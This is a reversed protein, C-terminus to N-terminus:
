NFTKLEGIEYNYSNKLFNMIYCFKDHKREMCFTVDKYLWHYLKIIDKIKTISITRLLPRAKRHYVSADINLERKFIIQLNNIFREQGLISFSHSITNRNKIKSSTICGDGEFYGLIFSNLYKNEINPVLFDTYSKRHEVGWKMLDQKIKKNNIRIGYANKTKYYIGNDFQRVGEKKELYLPKTYKLYTNIKELYLIDDEKLIISSINTNHVICGDAYILGLIQAKEPTDINEFVNEDISFIHKHRDSDVYIDYSRIIDSITDRSMKFKHGITTCSEGSIYLEIITPTIDITYQKRDSINNKQLIRYIVSPDIKYKRKIYDITLKNIYDTCINLEELETFRKM